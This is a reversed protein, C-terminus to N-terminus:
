ASLMDTLIRAGKGATTAFVAAKQGGSVAPYKEDIAQMLKDVADRHVLTVTCGGFGGGTIRSGFVGEVAMAIEVLADIENTSVEYLDRLSVHSEHMLKGTKVLDGQILAEKAAEAREDEEIGHRARRFTDEDISDKVAELMAMDCDRLHTVGPYKKAVAAAANECQQRRTNYESGVLEHKVKSDAVVVVADPHDLPVPVTEHTRCDVFLARGAEGCSSILQDMIGCQVGAFDQECTQGIKAREVPDVGRGSLAELLVGVAMELAASSSLGAGLPVDSVVAARFPVVPYGAREYLATMGKVYRTWPPAHAAPPTDGPVLTAVASPPIESVVECAHSARAAVIYTSKELALPFVFGDNYDTHEGILNM